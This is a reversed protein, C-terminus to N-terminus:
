TTTIVAVWSLISEDWNYQKTSFDDPRPVPPQFMCTAEDFTWSAFGRDAWIAKIQDQKTTKEEDTMARVQHIDTYVGGLFGYVLGEYVEYVGPVPASVRVFEAFETTNALNVDPFAIVFNEEVIPHDVTAGNEIRIYMKM